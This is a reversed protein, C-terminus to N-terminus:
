KSLRNLIPRLIPWFYFTLAAAVLLWLWVPVGGLLKGFASTTRTTVNSWGEQLGESFATDVQDIFAPMQREAAARELVGAYDDDSFRGDDYAAANLADIKASADNYAAQEADIDVGGSVVYYFFNKLGM